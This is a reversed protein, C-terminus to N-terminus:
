IKNYFNFVGVKVIINFFYIMSVNIYSVNIYSNILKEGDILFM